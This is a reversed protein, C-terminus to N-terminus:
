ASLTAATCKYVEISDSFTTAWGHQVSAATVTGPASETGQYLWLERPEDLSFVDGKALTNLAVPTTELDATDINM